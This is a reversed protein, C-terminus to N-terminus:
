TDYAKDALVKGTKHVAQLLDAARRCDHQQGAGVVVHVPRGQADALVHVKTSLGGRSRGLAEDGVRSKKPQGGGACSGARRDFRADGLGPGAGTRGRVPAAM